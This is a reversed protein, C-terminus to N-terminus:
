GPNAVRKEVAQLPFTPVRSLSWGAGKPTYVLAAEEASGVHRQALYAFAETTDRHSAGQLCLHTQLHGSLRQLALTVPHQAM